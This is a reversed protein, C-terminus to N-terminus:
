TVMDVFWVALEFRLVVLVVMVWCGFVSAFGWCGYVHPMRGLGCCAFAEMGFWGIWFVM